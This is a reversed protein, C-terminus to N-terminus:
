KIRKRKVSSNDNMTTTTATIPTTTTAAAPTTITTTTPPLPPPPATSTVNTKNNFLSHIDQSSLQFLPLTQNFLLKAAKHVHHHRPNYKMANYLMLYIDKKFYEKSLYSNSELNKRITELAIPYRIYKHYKPAIEDTIEHEFLYGQKHSILYQIIAMSQSQWSLPNEAIMASFKRSKEEEQEIQLNPVSRTNISRRTMPTHISQNKTQEISPSIENQNSNELDIDDKIEENIKRKLKTKNLNQNSNISNKPSFYVHYKPTTTSIVKINETKTESNTRSSSNSESNQCSNTLQDTSSSEMPISCSSDKEPLIENSCIM